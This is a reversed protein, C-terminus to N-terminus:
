MGEIIYTVTMFWGWPDADSLSVGIIQRKPYNQRFARLMENAEGSKTIFAIAIQTM